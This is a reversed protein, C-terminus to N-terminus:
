KRRRGARSSGMCSHPPSRTAPASTDAVAVPVGAAEVYDDGVLMACGRAGLTVCAAQWGFRAAGARCFREPDAPLGLWDRVLTLERENVKVVDAFTCCTAPSNARSSAPGCTSTASVAPARCRTWCSSCCTRGQARSAFSRATTAGRRSGSCSRRSSPTRLEVADYAAPRDIVFSTRDGPGLQVSATGTDFRDVWQLFTTDLGLSTIEARPTDGLADRASPASSGRSRPGAAELHVAFNLAAGGLRTADPFVDWLVEGVVLAHAVPTGRRGDQRSLNESVISNWRPARSPLLGATRSDIAPAIRLVGAGGSPLRAARGAAADKSAAAARAHRRDGDHRNGRVAPPRDDAPGPVPERVERRGHRRAPHRAPGVRQARSRKQCSRPPSTTPASSATPRPKRLVGKVQARDDPRNPLRAPRAGRREAGGQVRQHTRRGHAGLRPTGCLRRPSLGQLLHAALVYGARRNDVGVLDYHSRAPYPVLDRDLLVLPIAARDFVNTIRRNIADKEPTLELPAFFVGSVKKAM